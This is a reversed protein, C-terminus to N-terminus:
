GFIQAAVWLWFVTTVAAAATGITIATSSLRQGTDFRTALLWAYVGAPLSASAIVVKAEAPPLELILAVVVAIAPMFFLKLGVLSVSQSVQGAIGFRRLNMGVAFLAVPGAVNALADILRNGLAPIELGTLRWVIGTLIGIILPNVLFQHFFRRVVAVVGTASQGVVRDARVAWEYLILSVAMMITLHVTLILSLTALGAEGYIGLMFPIGLFVLNSFTTTFGAVVSSRADRKFVRRVTLHSVAWTVGIASFYTIWLKWPLGAGFEAQALTRFLLLPVAVTFVFDSLAQDTGAKLLRTWAVVYGVAILSFLFLIIEIFHPLQM